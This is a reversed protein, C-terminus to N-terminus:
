EVRGGALMAGLWVSITTESVQTLEALAATTLPGYECMVDYIGLKDGISELDAQRVSGSIIVQELLQELNWDKQPRIAQITM